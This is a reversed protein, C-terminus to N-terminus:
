VQAPLPVYDNAADHAQGDHTLWDLMTVLAQSTAQSPQRTYVLAWSYGSIPYHRQRQLPARRHDGRRPLTMGPTLATLAPDNWRPSRAALALVALLLVTGFSLRAVAPVPWAWARILILAAAWCAGVVPGTALLLRAAARQLQGQEILLVQGLDAGPSKGPSRSIAQRLGTKAASPAQL